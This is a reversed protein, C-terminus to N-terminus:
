LEDFAHRRVPLNSSQIYRRTALTTTANKHLRVRM